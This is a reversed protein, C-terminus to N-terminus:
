VNKSEIGVTGVCVVVVDGVGLVVPIKSVNATAFMESFNGEFQVFSAHYVLIEEQVKESGQTM